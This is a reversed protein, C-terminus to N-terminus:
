RAPLHGHLQQPPHDGLRPDLVLDRAVHSRREPDRVERAADLLQLPHHAQHGPAGELRGSEPEPPEERGLREDGGGPLTDRLDTCM